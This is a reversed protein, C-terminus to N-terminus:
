SQQDRHHHRQRWASPTKAANHGVIGGGLVTVNAPRRRPHRRAARRPLWPAELYQAGVQVAMAAVEARLTLLPLSGDKEQITEYAIGTVKADM